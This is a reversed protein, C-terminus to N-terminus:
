AGGAGKGRTWTTWSDVDDVWKGLRGHREFVEREIDGVGAGVGLPVHVVEPKPDDAINTARRVREEEAVVGAAHNHLKVAVGGCGDRVVRGRMRQTEMKRHHGV